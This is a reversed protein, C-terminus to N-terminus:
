SKVKKKNNKDDKSENKRKKDNKKDDKGTVKPEKKEATKPDGKPKVEAAEGKPMGARPAKGGGLGPTEKPKPKEFLLEDVPPPGKMKDDLPLSVNRLAYTAYADWSIVGQEYLRRLQENPVFPTVPFFVEVKYKKKAEYANKEKAFDVENMIKSTYIKNYIDSLM